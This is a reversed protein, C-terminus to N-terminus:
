PRLRFMHDHDEAVIVAVSWHDAQRAPQVIPVGIHECPHQLVSGKGAEVVRGELSECLFVLLVSCGGLLYCSIVTAARKMPPGRLPRLFLRWPLSKGGRRMATSSFSVLATLM